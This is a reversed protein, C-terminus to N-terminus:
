TMSEKRMDMRSYKEAQQKSHEAEPQPSWFPHFMLWEDPHKQLFGEFVRIYANTNQRIDAGKDGTRIVEIPDSYLVQSCGHEDRYFGIIITIADGLLALRATGLPIYAPHGFVDTLMTEEPHPWDLGVVLIGGDRLRQIAQRLTTPSIPTVAFDYDRRLKNQVEYGENPNSASLAQLDLGSGALTIMGLDFNGMHVGALQVGRGQAQTERIMAFVEEPIHVLKRLQEYPKGISHYFNYYNRIANKFAQTTLQDLRGPPDTTGPIHSLNERLKRYVKPQKKGIQEGAIRAVAYGLKPPLIKALALGGYISYKNKFFEQLDM